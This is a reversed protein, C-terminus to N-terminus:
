YLLYYLSVLPSPNTLLLREISTPLNDENELLYRSLKVQDSIDGSYANKFTDSVRQVVTEDNSFLDESNVVKQLDAAINIHRASDISM